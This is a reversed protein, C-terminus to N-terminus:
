VQKEKLLDNIESTKSFTPITYTKEHDEIRFQNKALDSIGKIKRIRTVGVM